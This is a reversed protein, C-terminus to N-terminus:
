ARICEVRYGVPFSWRANETKMNLELPSNNNCFLAASLFVNGFTQVL